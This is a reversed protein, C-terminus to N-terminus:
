TKLMRVAAMAAGFGNDINVVCLGAACSNLMTLIPAVGGFSAGYGVSTPVAIVPKEILGAVFSALAGDMGAIVITVRTERLLELADFLRKIGAVGVDYICTVSVGSAVLLLAAEEAVAIDATGATIISVQPKDDGPSSSSSSQPTPLKGFILCRPQSLYEVEIMETAQSEGEKIMALAEQAKIQDVRTAVVLAHQSRLKRAIGVIQAATKGEGLIVEPFGQRIARHYDPKAFGLDEYPLVALKAVAEDVNVRGQQVLHLLNEVAKKDM